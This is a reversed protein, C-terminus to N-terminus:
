WRRAGDAGCGEGNSGHRVGFYGLLRGFHPGGWAVRYVGANAIPIPDRERPRANLHCMVPEDLVGGACCTAPLPESAAHTGSVPLDTLRCCSEQRQRASPRPSFDRVQAESEGRKADGSTTADGSTADGSTADGSWERANLARRAGCGEDRREIASLERVDEVHWVNCSASSSTCEARCTSLGLRDHRFSSDRERRVARQAHPNECPGTVRM